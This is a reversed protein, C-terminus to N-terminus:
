KSLTTLATDFGRVFQILRRWEDAPPAAAAPPVGRTCPRGSPYYSWQFRNAAGEVRQLLPMDDTDLADIVWPPIRDSEERKVNWEEVRTRFLANDAALLQAVDRVRELLFACDSQGVREFEDDSKSAGDAPPADGNSRPAGAAAKKATLDRGMRMVLYDRFTPRAADALDLEADTDDYWRRSPYYMADHALRRFGPDVDLAAQFDDHDLVMEVVLQIRVDFRYARATRVVGPRLGVNGDANRLRAIERRLDIPHMQARHLLILELFPYDLEDASRERQGTTSQPLAKQPDRVVNRVFQHLDKPRFVIFLQHGFYTHEVPYPAGAEVRRLEEFYARDTIFVFFASEAVFKKLHHVMGVIRESLHEVKDLEDIVFVPALGAQRLRDILIPLVRDLTAVRLDFLFTYQRSVSRERSRTSSYKMVAASGLAAALGSLTAAYGGVDGTQRLGVGVLGGALLAILPGFLDKGSPEFGLTAETKLEAADKQQEERTFTGSIRRYAECVTSLAVLERMGQSSITWYTSARPQSPVTWANQDRDLVGRRLVRGRTWFQRLRAPTPCEYLEVEFQAALEIADASRWNPRTRSLELSTAVVRQWYAQSMERALARHLGLTIQKLASQMETDPTADDGAAAAGDSSSPSVNVVVKASSEPQAPPAPTAAAGKDQDAANPLLNPGHLPVFLPRLMGSARATPLMAAKWVQQFAHAVLTTKGAGRHGSILFSRGSVEQECYRRLEQALLRSADSEILVCDKAYSAGSLPEPSEIIQIPM